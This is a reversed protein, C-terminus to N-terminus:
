TPARSSGQRVAGLVNAVGRLSADMGFGWLFAGVYDGFTGFLKGNYYMTTLASLIAIGLALSSVGFDMWWMRRGLQAIARDSASPAVFVSTEVKNVEAGERLMSVKVAFRGSRKYEHTALPKDTTKKEEDGFEWAFEHGELQAPDPAALVFSLRSGVVRSEISDKVELTPGREPLGTAAPESARGFRRGGAPVSVASALAECKKVYQEAADAQEALLHSLAKERAALLARQEDTRDIEPVSELSAASGEIADLQKSLNIVKQQQEAKLAVLRREIDDLEEGSKSPDTRTELQALRQALATLEALTSRSEVLRRLRDIEATLRLVRLMAQQAPRWRKSLFDLGFAAAVGLTIVALPIWVDDTVEILLPIRIPGKGLVPSQVVIASAFEGTREFGQFVLNLAGGKCADTEAQVRASGADLLREGKELRARDHVQEVSATCSEINTGRKSRVQWTFSTGARSFPTPRLLRVVLPTTSELTEPRKLTVTTDAIEPAAGQKAEADVGSFRLAVQYDGPSAFVNDDAALKILWSVERESARKEASAVIGAPSVPSKADPGKVGEVVVEFDKLKGDASVVFALPEGPAGLTFALGAPARLKASGEAASASASTAVLLAAATALFRRSGEM